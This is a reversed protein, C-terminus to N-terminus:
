PHVVNGPSLREVASRKEAESPHLYVQTSMPSAHGLLNQVVDLREGKRIWNTAATHRLMHPRAVIGADKGLRDVCRKANSYTMASDPVQGYLNLFVLDSSSDPALVDKDRQYDSYADVVAATVPVDRSHRSKALSGNPNLRRHVHLHAGRIRCGLVSSDPLFHLDSRHLGLTEGIRLGSDHM